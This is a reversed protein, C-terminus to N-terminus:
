VTSEKLKSYIQKSIKINYVDKLDVYSEENDHSNHKSHRYVDCTFSFWSAIDYTTQNYRKTRCWWHQMSFINRSFIPTMTFKWKCKAFCIIYFRIHYNLIMYLGKQTVNLLHWYLHADNYWIHIYLGTNPWTINICINTNLLTFIYSHM